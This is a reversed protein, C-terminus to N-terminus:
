YAVFRFPFDRELTSLDRRSLVNATEKAVSQINLKASSYWTFGALNLLARQDSETDAYMMLIEGTRADYLKAEVAIAGSAFYGTVLGAGPVVLGAAVGLYNLEAKTPIIATVATALVLTEPQRPDDAVNLRNVSSVKKLEGIFTERMYKGLGEIDQGLHGAVARNFEEWGTSKRLLSMDVPAVYINRYQRHVRRLYFYHFPFTDPQRVLLEHNPLFGTVPMPEARFASYFSSCGTLVCGLLAAFIIKQWM